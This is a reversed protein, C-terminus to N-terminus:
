RRFFTEHVYSCAGCFANVIVQSHCCHGADTKRYALKFIFLKGSKPVADLFLLLIM